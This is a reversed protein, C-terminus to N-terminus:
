LLQYGASESAHGLSTVELCINKLTATLLSCLKFPLKTLRNVHCRRYLYLLWVEKIWDSESTLPLSVPWRQCTKSAPNKQRTKPPVSLRTGIPDTKTTIKLLSTKMIQSINKHQVRTSYVRNGPLLHVRKSSSKLPIGPADQHITIRCLQKLNKERERETHCVVARINTGRAAIHSWDAWMRSNKKLVPNKPLKIGSDKAEPNCRHKVLLFQQFKLLETQSWLNKRDEVMEMWWLVHHLQLGPPFCHYRVSPKMVLFHARQQTCQKYLHCVSISSLQGM